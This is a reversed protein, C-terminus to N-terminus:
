KLQTNLRTAFLDISCKGLTTLIQQFIPQHLQWEAISQILGDAVCSDVGPLHEATISLNRELCWQWLQIALKSLIPSRTGGMRNIYFVATRNDMRLHIHINRRDKAFARVAFMAALLELYNIHNKREMQSWLGTRSGQCVAGWGLMSAVMEM